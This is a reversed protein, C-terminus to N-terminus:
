IGGPMENRIEDTFFKNSSATGKALGNEEVSRALQREQALQLKVWMAALALAQNKCGCRCVRQLEQHSLDWDGHHADIQNQCHHLVNSSYM